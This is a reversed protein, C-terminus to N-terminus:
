SIRHSNVFFRNKSAFQLATFVLKPTKPRSKCKLLGSGTLKKPACDESPPPVIKTQLPCLCDNPPSVAGSHEGKAGPRTSVCSAYPVTIFPEPGHIESKFESKALCDAVENVHIKTHAPFWAISVHNQKDLQNLNRICNLETILTVTCKILSKIAAQSDVLLVISQKNMKELLLNKAVERFAFVEAQFVTGHIGLHFFAQKPSNNPNEAYFGAGVRGDLKSGDTYIKVTNQNLVSETRVANKKDMIQCEFNREFVKTKNIQDAPM